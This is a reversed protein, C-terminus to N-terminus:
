FRKFKRRPLTGRCQCKKWKSLLRIGTSGGTCWSFAFYCFESFEYCRRRSPRSSSSIPSIWSFWLVLYIRLFHHRCFCTVDYYVKCYRGCAICILDCYRWLIIIHHWLRMQLGCFLVGVHGEISLLISTDIIIPTTNTIIIIVTVDLAGQSSRRCALWNFLLVSSLDNTILIIFALSLFSFLLM